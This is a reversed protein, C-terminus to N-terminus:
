HLLRDCFPLFTKLLNVHALPIAELYTLDTLSFLVGFQSKEWLSHLHARKARSPQFLPQGGSTSAPEKQQRRM